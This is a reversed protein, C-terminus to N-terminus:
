CNAGRVKSSTRKRRTRTIYILCHERLPQIQMIMAEYATQSDYQLSQIEAKHNIISEDAAQMTEPIAVGYQELNDKAASLLEESVIAVDTM